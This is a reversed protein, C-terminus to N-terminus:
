RNNAWTLALSKGQSKNQISLVMREQCYMNNTKYVNSQTSIKSSHSVSLWNLIMGVLTQAYTANHQGKNEIAHFLITICRKGTTYRLSTHIGLFYLHGTPYEM